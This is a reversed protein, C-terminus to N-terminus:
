KFLYTIEMMKHEIDSKDTGYMEFVHTLDDVIRTVSRLKMPGKVPDEYRCVQTITREEPDGTGEFFFIGTSMSDIWTSVYRQKQNDFGTLGIGAFPTGMMDGHFEQYLYRGDFLMKQESTGTSEVPPKGPEMWQKTLTTWRGAMKELMAHAPGPAGAKCYVEMMAAKDMTDKQQTEATM